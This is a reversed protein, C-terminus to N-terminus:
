DTTDDDNYTNVEDQLQKFHAAIRKGLDLVIPALFTAALAAVVGIILTSM